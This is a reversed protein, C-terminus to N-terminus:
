APDADGKSRVPKLVEQGRGLVPVERPSGLRPMHDLRRMWARSAQIPAGSARLDGCLTVRFAAPSYTCCRAAPSVRSRCRIRRPASLTAPRSRAANAIAAVCANDKVMKGPQAADKLRNPMGGALIKREVGHERRWQRGGQLRHGPLPCPIAQSGCENAASSMAAPRNTLAPSSLNETRTSTRKNRALM